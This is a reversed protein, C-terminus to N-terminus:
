KGSLLGFPRGFQTGGTHASSLVSKEAVFGAAAVDLVM